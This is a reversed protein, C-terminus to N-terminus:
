INFSFTFTLALDLHQCSKAFWWQLMLAADRVVAVADVVTSSGCCATAKIKTNGTVPLTFKFKSKFKVDLNLM